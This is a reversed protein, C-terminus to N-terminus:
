VPKPPAVGNPKLHRKTQSLEQVFADLERPIGVDFSTQKAKKKVEPDHTDEIATVAATAIKRFKEAAKNKAIAVGGLAATGVGSLIWGLVDGYPGPLTHGIKEGMGMGGESVPALDGLLRCGGALVCLAGFAVALITNRM